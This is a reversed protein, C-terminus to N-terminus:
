ARASRLPKFLTPARLRRHYAYWEILLVILGLLALYTWYERQGIEAEVAQPVVTDGLTLTAQPAISSENPDFLNVAFTATQTAAGNMLGEVMYLGPLATDAFALPSGAYTLTRSAGDPLTVRAADSDAQPTIALSDGVRLGNPANILNQPSYWNMLSSMLIPWQIQLPLDSDRLDFTLIAVQRAGTEGALLLAGGDVSILSEAWSAVVQRFKLLNVTSFDVFTMRPDDRQV